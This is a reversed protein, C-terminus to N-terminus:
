PQSESIEELISWATGNCPGLLLSIPSSYKKQVSYRTATVRIRQGEAVYKVNSYTSYEGRAKAIPMTSRILGKYQPAPIEIVRRQGTPYVRTTRILATDCYLDAVTADFARERAQYSDFLARAPDAPAQQASSSTGLTVLACTALLVQRLSRIM